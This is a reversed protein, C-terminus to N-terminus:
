QDEDLRCDLTCVGDVCRGEVCGASATCSEGSRPMPQCIGDLCSSNIDCFRPSGFHLGCASGMAPLAECIGALSGANSDIGACFLGAACWLEPASHAPRCPEGLQPREECQGVSANPDDLASRCILDLACNDAPGDGELATCSEGRTRSYVQDFPVCTRPTTTGCVLGPRCKVFDCPQNVDARLELFQKQVCIQSSDCDLGARCQNEGDISCREGEASLPQCTAECGNDGPCFGDKCESDLSCRQGLEVAGEIPGACAEEFDERDVQQCTSSGIAAICRALEKPIYTVRGADIAAEIDALGRGLSASLASICHDRYLIFTTRIDPYCRQFSDCYAEAVRTAIEDAVFQQPVEPLSETTSESCAVWLPSLGLVFLVTGFAWHNTAEVWGLGWKSSTRRNKISYAARFSDSM